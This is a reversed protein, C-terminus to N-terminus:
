DKYFEYIKLGIRFNQLAQQLKELFLIGIKRINSCRFKTLQKVKTLLLSKIFILIPTIMFEQIESSSDYFLRIIKKFKIKIERFNM